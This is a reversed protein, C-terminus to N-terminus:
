IDNSIHWKISCKLIHFRYINKFILYINVINTCKILNSFSDPFDPVNEVCKVKKYYFSFVSCLGFFFNTM